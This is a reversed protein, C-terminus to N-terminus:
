LKKSKNRHLILIVALVIILVVAIVIAITELSISKSFPAADSYDKVNAAETTIEPETEADSTPAPEEVSTSEMEKEIEGIKVMYGETRLYTASVYATTGNYEIQAWGTTAAGTVTVAEGKLIVGLLESDKYAEAYVNLEEIDWVYMTENDVPLVTYEIKGSATSGVTNDAIEGPADAAPQEPDPTKKNEGAPEKPPQEAGAEENGPEADSEPAPESVPIEIPEQSDPAEGGGVQEMYGSSIGVSINAYFQAIYESAQQDTLDIDDQSLYATVQGIYGDTVKYYAGNYAYVSSITSIIGQEASNLDGAYATVPSLFACILVLLPIFYKQKM